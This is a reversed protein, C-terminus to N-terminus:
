SSPQNFAGSNVERIFKIMGTFYTDADDYMALHSGNPCHLYQGNEVQGAMWEMHKPDMTDHAAGIVLTPVSIQPLDKSRDWDKLSADGVIGFESPGQMALYIDYNLRSFGRMVPEPWEELPMRLIHETYYHEFLLESYRPNDYEENAELKRVEKLVEEPLMPALVENAYKNYEPVSSVMNSIILGKLNNQYKFAYEMALIGGWSNGYLYFNSSDLNLAQRVQEVEEVFHDITWLDPDNPQDSFASELQDYYYYEINAAPFFSDFVEYLEHNAGPGGHLILVKMDPNNGIRKTWVEFEGKPTTIPIMKVGGSLIDDRGSYDLYGSKQDATDTKTTSEPQQTNCNAGLLALIILLFLKKM